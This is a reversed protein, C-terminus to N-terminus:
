RNRDIWDASSQIIHRIEDDLTELLNEVRDNKSVRDDILGTIELAKQANFISLLGRLSHIHRRFAALNQERVALRILALLEISSSAFDNLFSKFFGHDAGTKDIVTQLDRESFGPVTWKRLKDLLEPIRVLKSLYDDMGASLCNEIEEASAAATLAIIPTHRVGQEAARIQRTAEYGDMIPMQCDMLVLDYPFEGCARVAAQGNAATSYLFGNAKLIQVLFLRNIENDDVVLLHAPRDPASGAAMFRFGGEFSSSRDLKNYSICGVIEVCVLPRFSTKRLVAPDPTILSKDWVSAGGRRAAFPYLISFFDLLIDLDCLLSM